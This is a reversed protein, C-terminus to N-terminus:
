RTWDFGRKGVIVRAGVPQRLPLSRHAGFVDLLTKECEFTSQDPVILMVPLNSDALEGAIKLTETSKGSGSKGLIFRLM